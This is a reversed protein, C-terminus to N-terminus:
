LSLTLNRENEKTLEKTSASYARSFEQVSSILTSLQTAVANNVKAAIVTELYKQLRSEFTKTFIDHIRASLDEKATKLAAEISILLTKDIVEQIQRKIEDRLVYEKTYYNTKIEKQLLEKAISDKLATVDADIRRKIEAIKDDTFLPRIHNKIFENAIRDRVEVQVQDSGGLLAELADKDNIQIKLNSM